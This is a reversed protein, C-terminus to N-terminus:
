SKKDANKMVKKFVKEVKKNLRNEGLKEGFNNILIRAFFLEEDDYGKTRLYDEEIESVNKKKQEIFDEDPNELNSTYIKCFLYNNEKSLSYIAQRNIEARSGKSLKGKLKFFLMERDGEGILKKLKNTVEKPSLGNCDIIKIIIDRTEVPVFSYKIEEDISIIYYGKPKGNKMEKFNWYETSGSYILPKNDYTTEFHSHWHGSLYLDCNKPLQSTKIAGFVPKIDSIIHHFVFVCKKDRPKKIVLNEFMENLGSQRGYLGCVFLNNFVEGNFIHKNNKVSYYKKDTIHYALKLYDLIKLFSGEVGIDHNGAVIIFPINEKKLKKLQKVVFIFNNISPVGTDFLDGGHIVIDVKKNVADDIIKSFVKKFDEEREKVKFNKRGIHTDSLFLIKM